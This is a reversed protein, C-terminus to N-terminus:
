CYTCVGVVAVMGGVRTPNGEERETFYDDHYDYKVLIFYISKCLLCDLSVVYSNRRPEPAAHMCVHPSDRRGNRNRRPRATCIM